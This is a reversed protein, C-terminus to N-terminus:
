NLYIHFKKAGNEVRHQLENWSKDSRFYPVNVCIDLLKEQSELVRLLSKFQEANQDGKHSMELNLYLEALCNLSKLSTTVNEVMEKKLDFKSSLSLGLKRLHTLCGVSKVLDDFTNEACKDDVRCDLHFSRLNTLKLLAHSMSEICKEDLRSDCGLDLDLHQLKPLSPFQSFLLQIGINDITLSSWTDLTLSVLEKLDKLCLSIVEFFSGTEITPSLNLKLSALSSFQALTAPFKSFGESTVLDHENFRLSLHTLSSFRQLVILLASLDSDSFDSYFELSLRRFSSPNLFALGIALADQDDSKLHNKSGLHLSLDQFNQLDKLNEFLSICTSFDLAESGAACFYLSTLLPLKSLSSFLNLLAMQTIGKINTLELSLSKLSPLFAVHYSLTLLSADNIWKAFYLDLSLHSLSHFASIFHLTQLSKAPSVAFGDLHCHLNTLQKFNNTCHTFAHSIKPTLTRSNPFALHFTSLSRLIKLAPFIPLCKKAVQNYILLKFSSISKNKKILKAFSTFRPLKRTNIFMDDPPLDEYELSKLTTINKKILRQLELNSDFYKNLPRYVRFQKREM